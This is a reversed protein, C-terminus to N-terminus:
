LSPPRTLAGAARRTEPDSLRFVARDLTYHTFATVLGLAILAPVVAPGTLAGELFPFLELGYSVVGEGLAEVEMVPLLLTSLVGLVLVVAWPRANVGAWLRYWGSGTAEREGGAVLSALGMAAMWHQTSWLFLFLFPDVTLAAIVMVAMSVLYLARPLSPADARAELALMAATWVAVVWLGVTKVAAHATTLWTPDVLEDLWRERYVITGALAEAVFVLLGGVFLAYIRDIRRRGRTRTQGGRVRYLSLIGFHQSAFHYTVLGYDLIVLHVIREVRTWPLADDPLLLFTFVVVALLLPFWVFRIPQSRLLPRYAPTCYALYTSSLRHGIWFAATLVLYVRDLPSSAPDDGRGLWWAIPALWLGGLIWFGDWVPGRVWGGAHRARAGTSAPAVIAESPDAPTARYM